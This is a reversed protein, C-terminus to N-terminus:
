VQDFRQLAGFFSLPVKGCTGNRNKVIKLDVTKSGRVDFAASEDCTLDLVTEAGYEIKRTGAGASLGGAAMSNRNRESIVLIACQLESAIRRLARIGANLTDYETGVNLTDYKNGDKGDKGAGGAGEAWSHLSDIVILMHPSDGRVNMAMDVILAPSAYAQTADLVAPFAVKESIAAAYARVQDPTYEGRFRGLYQGSVRAVIRRALEVPGMEASVYLAPCDAQAAMQLAFATKGVGPSGHVIHLGPSWAGGLEDALRPFPIRPGHPIGTIYSEHAAIADRVLEDMLDRITLLSPEPSPVIHLQETSM